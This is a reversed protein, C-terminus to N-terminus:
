FRSPSSACLYPGSSSSDSGAELVAVSAVAVVVVEGAVTTTSLARRVATSSASTAYSACRLLRSTHRRSRAPPRCQFASTARKLAPTSSTFGRSTPKVMFRHSHKSETESEGEEEIKM